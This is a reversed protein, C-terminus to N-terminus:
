KQAKEVRLTKGLRSRGANQFPAELSFACSAACSFFRGLFRRPGFAGIQLWLPLIPWAISIIRLQWLFFAELRLMDQAIRSGRRQLEDLGYPFQRAIHV